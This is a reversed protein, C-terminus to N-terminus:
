QPLLLWFTSPYSTFHWLASGAHACVAHKAGAHHTSAAAMEKTAQLPLLALSIYIETLPCYVAYQGISYKGFNPYARGIFVDQWMRYCLESKLKLVHGHM